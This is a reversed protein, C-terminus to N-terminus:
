ARTKKIQRIGGCVEKLLDRASFRPRCRHRGLTKGLALPGGTLAASSAVLRLLSNVPLYGMAGSRNILQGLAYEQLLVRPKHRGKRQQSTMATNGPPDKAGNADPRALGDQHLVQPMGNLAADATEFM